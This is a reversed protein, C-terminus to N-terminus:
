LCRWSWSDPIARFGLKDVKEKADMLREIGICVCWRGTFKHIALQLAVVNTLRPLECFGSLVPHLTTVHVPGTRRRPHESCDCPLLPKCCSTKAVDFRHHCATVFETADQRGQALPKVAIRAFGVSLNMCPLWRTLPQQIKQPFLQRPAFDASGSMPPIADKGSHPASKTLANVQEIVRCWSHVM